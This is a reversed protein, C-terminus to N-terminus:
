PRRNAVAACIEWGAPSAVGLQSIAVSTGAGYANWYGPRAPPFASLPMLDHRRDFAIHAQVFAIAARVATGISRGEAVVDHELGRVM